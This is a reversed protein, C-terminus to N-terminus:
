LKRVRGTDKFPPMVAQAKRSYEEKLNVLNERSDIALENQLKLPTSPPIRFLASETSRRVFIRQCEDSWWIVYGHDLLWYFAEIAVAEGNMWDWYKGFLPREASKCPM